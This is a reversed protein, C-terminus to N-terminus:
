APSPRALPKPIWHPLSFPSRRMQSPTVPETVDYATVLMDGNASFKRRTSSLFRLPGELAIPIETSGIHRAALIVRRARIAFPNPQRDRLHNDSHNVHV